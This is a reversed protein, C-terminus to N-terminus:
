PGSPNRATIVITVALVVLDLSCSIGYQPLVRSMQICELGRTGFRREVVVACNNLFTRPIQIVGFRRKVVAAGRHRRLAAVEQTCCATVGM